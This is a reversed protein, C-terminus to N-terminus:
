TPPLSRGGSGAAAKASSVAGGGGNAMGGAAGGRAGFDEANAQLEAVAVAAGRSDDARPPEDCLQTFMSAMFVSVAGGGIASGM